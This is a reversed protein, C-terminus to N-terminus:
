AGTIIFTEPDSVLNETDEKIKLLIVKPSDLEYTIVYKKSENFMGMQTLLYNNFAYSIDINFADPTISAEKIENPFEIYIKDPYVYRYSAVVNAEAQEQAVTSGLQVTEYYDLINQQSIRTSTNVPSEIVESDLHTSIAQTKTTGLRIIEETTIEFKEGLLFPVNPNFRISATGNLPIVTSANKINLSYNDVLVSDKLLSFGVVHQGSSLNSQSTVELEFIADESTGERDIDIFIESGGVSVTKDVLYSLPPLDKSVILYYNSNPLLFDEPNITLIYGDAVQTLSTEYQVRSYESSDIIENLFIDGLNPVNQEKHVRTLAIYNDISYLDPQESLLVKINEGVPLAKLQHESNIIDIVDIGIAM